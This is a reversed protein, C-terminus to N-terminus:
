KRNGDTHRTGKGKGKGKGKRAGARSPTPLHDFRPERNRDRREYRDEEEDRDSTARTFPDTCVACEMAMDELFVARDVVANLALAQRKCLASVMNKMAETFVQDQSLTEASVLPTLLPTVLPSDGGGVAHARALASQIASSEGNDLFGGM